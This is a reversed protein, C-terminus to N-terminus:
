FRCTIPVLKKL